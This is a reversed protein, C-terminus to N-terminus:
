SLKAGHVHICTNTVSGYFIAARFNCPGEVWSVRVKTKVNQLSCCVIGCCYLGSYDCTLVPCLWTNVISTEFLKLGNRM